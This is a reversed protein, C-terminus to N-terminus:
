FSVKVGPRPFALPYQPTNCRTSAWSPPADASAANAPAIAALAITTANTSNANCRLYEHSSTHTDHSRDIAVRVANTEESASQLGLGLLRQDRLLCQLM